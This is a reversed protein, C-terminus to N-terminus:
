KALSKKWGTWLKAVENLIFDTSRHFTSLDNLSTDKEEEGSPIDPCSRDISKYLLLWFGFLVGFYKNPDKNFITFYLYISWAIKLDPSHEENLLYIQICNYLSHLRDDSLISKGHFPLFNTRSFLLRNKTADFSWSLRKPIKEFKEWLKFVLFFWLAIARLPIM